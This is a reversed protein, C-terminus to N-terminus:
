QVVTLGFRSFRACIFRCRVLTTNFCFVFQVNWARHKFCVAAIASLIFASTKKNPVATQLGTSESSKQSAQKGSFGRREGLGRVSRDIAGAPTSEAQPPACEFDQKEASNWVLSERETTRSRTYKHPHALGEWCSNALYKNNSCARRRTTKKSQSPASTENRAQELRHKGYFLRQWRPKLSSATCDTCLPSRDWCAANRHSVAQSM